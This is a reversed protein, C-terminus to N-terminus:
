NLKSYLYLSWEQVESLWFTKLQIIGGVYMSSLSGAVLVSFQKMFGSSQSITIGTLGIPIVVCALDPDCTNICIFWWGM